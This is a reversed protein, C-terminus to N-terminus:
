NVRRKTFMVAAMMAAIPTTLVMAASGALGVAVEIAIYDSSMLQHYNTGYSTLVLLTAFAGGVFALILTNCMTGLMDKGINMGHQFLERKEIGPKAKTIEFMASSISMGVDMVAGLSSIIVALFILDNLKLGSNKAIVLLIEGEELNFGSIHLVESFAYYILASIILGSATAGVAVLSKLTMGNLLLITMGTIAVSIIISCLIPSGGYYIMPMLYTLIVILAFVLSIASKVGKGRGVVILLVIFIFGLIFISNTRDYNYVSFYAQANQPADICVIIRSGNKVYISHTSSLYNTVEITQNKYAGEKLKVKLIQTGIYCGEAISNPEIEEEKVEVVVGKDYSKASSNYLEYPRFQMINWAIGGVCIFIAIVILTIEVIRNKRNTEKSM